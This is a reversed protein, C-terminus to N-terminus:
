GYLISKDNFKVFYSSNVYVLNVNKLKKTVPVKRSSSFEVVTRVIVLVAAAAVAM